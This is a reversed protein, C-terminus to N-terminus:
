FGHEVKKKKYNVNENQELHEKVENFTKNTNIKQLTGFNVEQHKLLSVLM